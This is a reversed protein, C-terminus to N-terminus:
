ARPAHVAGDDQEDSPQDPPLAPDGHQYIADAITDWDAKAPDIGAIALKPAAHSRVIAWPVYPPPGLDDRGVKVLGGDRKRVAFSTLGGESFRHVIEVLEQAPQADTYKLTAFCELRPMWNSDVLWSLRIADWFSPDSTLLRVVRATHADPADYRRFTSITSDRLSM